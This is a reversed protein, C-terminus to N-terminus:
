AASAGATQACRPGSRGMTSEAAGRIDPLLAVTPKIPPSLKGHIFALKGGAVFDYDCRHRSRLPPASPLSKSAARHRRRVRVKRGSSCLERVWAPLIEGSIAAPPRHSAAPAPIGDPNLPCMHSLGAALEASRKAGSSMASYKGGNAGCNCSCVITKAAEERQGSQRLAEAKLFIRPYLSAQVFGGRTPRQTARWCNEPRQRRNLRSAPGPWCSRYAKKRLRRRPILRAKCYRLRRPLIRALLLAYVTALNKVPKRADPFLREAQQTLAARRRRKAQFRVVAALGGDGTRQCRSEAFAPRPADGPLDVCRSRYTQRATRRDKLM